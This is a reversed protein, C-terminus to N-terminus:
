PSAPLSKTSQVPFLATKIWDLVQQKEDSIKAGFGLFGRASTKAVREALEYLRTKYASVTEPKLRHELLQIALQFEEAHSLGKIGAIVQKLEQQLRRCANAFVTQDDSKAACENVYDVLAQAEKHNVNGDSRATIVLALVPLHVLSDSLQRDLSDLIQKMSRGTLAELLIPRKDWQLPPFHLYSAVPTIFEALIEKVREMPIAEHSYYGDPGSFTLGEVDAPVLTSTGSYHAHKFRTGAPTQSVTPRAVYANGYLYCQQVLSDMIGDITKSGLDATLLTLEFHAVPLRVQDARDKAAIERTVGLEAARVEEARSRFAASELEAVALSQGEDGTVKAGLKQGASLLWRAADWDTDSALSMLEFTIQNDKSALSVGRSSGKGLLLITEKEFPQTAANPYLREMCRLPVWDTEARLLKTLEAEWAKRDFRNGSLTFTTSMMQSYNYCTSHRALLLAFPASKRCKQLFKGQSRQRRAPSLTCIFNHLRHM